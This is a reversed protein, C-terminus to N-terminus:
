LGMIKRIKEIFARAAVVAKEADARTPEGYPLLGEETPYRGKYISNLFIADPDYASV